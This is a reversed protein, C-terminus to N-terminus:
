IPEQYIMLYIAIDIDRFYDELFSGHLYAFMVAERKKIEGLSYIRM